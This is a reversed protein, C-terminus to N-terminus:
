GDTIMENLNLSKINIEDSPKLRWFLDLWLVKKVAANM